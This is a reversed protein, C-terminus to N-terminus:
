EHIQYPYITVGKVVRTITGNESPNDPKLGLQMSKFFGLIQAPLVSCVCLLAEDINPGKNSFAISEDLLLDNEPTESIGLQCLGKEGNNVAKVFDTEYQHAFGNNSFLYVLLTSPNIVAKPGHRFGLFSDCTSIVKGGTLEQIKLSAERAVGYLPGSGLFVARDFGLRSIKELRGADNKIIHEGYEALRTIENQLNQVSALKSILLSALLMTSFSGTMVLSQDDADAPLLFVCTPSRRSSNALKGAPNCTIILHYLKSCMRDALESAAVSEPSDGSRAFSVLLTAGRKNFYNQPHTILDTTAVARTRCRTNKMFPGQLINGIFASTGAGTLIVDLEKHQFADRLFTELVPKKTNILEFTELWLRPQQAIERATHHGGGQQVDTLFLGLIKEPAPEIIKM